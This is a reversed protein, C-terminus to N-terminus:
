YGKEKDVVSFLQDGNLYRRLNDIFLDTAIDLENEIGGSVHPSYIVNPLEWLRSEAPLPETSFVDLGAGVIWGESLARVLAVEDIVSGRAINILYATPKMTRLEEEGIMGDTEATLPVTLAIFDSQSLLQPLGERPLMVDVNDIGAVSEVTRRIAMVRMGFAKALRAVERGISGLGVVGMTKSSLGATTFVQWQRAQKLQFSRPMQKAFMLAVCIVFEAIPTASMGKINTVLVPSHIVDPTLIHEVGASIIQVWKLREGRSIVDRPLDLGYIIEAQTLFTDLRKRALQDDKEEAVMLDAVDTVRIRPSVASIQRLCRDGIATTVLINVLEDRM